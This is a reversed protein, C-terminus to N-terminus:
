MTFRFIIMNKTICSYINSISDPSGCHGSNTLSVITQLLTGALCFYFLLASVRRARGQARRARGQARRAKEQTRSARSSTHPLINTEHM